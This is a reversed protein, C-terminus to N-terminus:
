HVKASIKELPLWSQSEEFPEVKPHATCSPTAQIYYTVLNRPCGTIYIIYVHDPLLKVYALLV